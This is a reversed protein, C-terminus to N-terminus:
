SPPVSGFHRSMQLLALSSTSWPRDPRREVLEVRNEHHGIGAGAAVELLHGLKAPIRPRIASGEPRIMSRGILALKRSPKVTSSNKMEVWPARLTQGIGGQPGGVRTVQGPPQDIHGLIHDDALVVAARGFPDLDAGDIVLAFEILVLALQDLGQGFPDDAAHEASSM